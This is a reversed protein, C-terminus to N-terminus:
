DSTDEDFIGATRTTPTWPRPSHAPEAGPGPRVGRAPRAAHRRHRGGARRHRGPGAARDARRGRGPGPGDAGHRRDHRLQDDPDAAAPEARRRVAATPPRRRRAAAREAFTVLLIANAMAVGVAMIAGMFSQINLTTGTLWCPWRGRRRAGGAGDLGVILALRLSQFNATLLLFISSWRWAGPGVRWAASCRSCRCSRAASTSRARRAAARRGGALAATSAPRGGPGPGRGRHQGDHEGAAAHQLPRVRRADTGERVQAVDRLLLQESTTARSRCWASRARGLEDPLAPDGGAGPLRHRDEPDAWYNPM